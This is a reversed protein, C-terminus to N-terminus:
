RSGGSALGGFGAVRVQRIPNRRVEGRTRALRWCAPGSTGISVQDSGWVTM